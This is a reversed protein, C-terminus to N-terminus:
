SSALQLASRAALDFLAMHVDHATRWGHEQWVAGSADDGAFLYQGIAVGRFQAVALLAAGEAEVVICGGM